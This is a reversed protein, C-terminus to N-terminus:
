LPMADPHIKSDHQSPGDAAPGTQQPLPHL